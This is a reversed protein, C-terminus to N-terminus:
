YRAVGEEARSKDALDKVMPALTAVSDPNIKVVAVVDIPQDMHNTRYYFFYLTPHYTICYDSTSNHSTTANRSRETNQTLTINVSTSPPRNSIPTMTMTAISTM